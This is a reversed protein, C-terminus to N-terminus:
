GRDAFWRLMTAEAAGGYFAELLDAPLSRGRLTPASMEDHNAPDIMHLDPDAINSEGEYATEWMTRLAWYRSAYLEFADPESSALAAGYRESESPALHQDHTVIDSGFLVRGRFREMFGLLEDRPHRSLERVMWKTASTDLIINPHRELLGAVFGLDEPWGGMHAVLFPVDFREALRELGAYHEPKPRYRATDAYKTAFWTDPDAVHAMLMMGHGLAREAIEVRIPHDLEWMEEIGADRAFDRFRPANWLKICRAGYERAWTDVNQRFGDTFAHRKDDSMYEPIAVFDIRGGMVELVKDAEALQTQSIVRSIGYLDCVGRYIEAARSGNIHCHADVIPRVPPGLRAAEERYDLGLRNAPTPAVREPMNRGRGSLRIKMMRRGRDFFGARVSPRHYVPVIAVCGLAPWARNIAFRARPDGQRM